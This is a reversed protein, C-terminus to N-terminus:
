LMQIFLPFYLGYNEQLLWVDPYKPLSLIYKMFGHYKFNFCEIIEKSRIIKWPKTYIHCFPILEIVLLQIYYYNIHLPPRAEFNSYLTHTKLAQIEYVILRKWIIQGMASPCLGEPSVVVKLQKWFGREDQTQGNEDTM